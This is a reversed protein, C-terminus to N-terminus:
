TMMDLDDDVSSSRPVGPHAVSSRDPLLSGLGVQAMPSVAVAVTTTTTTPPPPPVSSVFKPLPRPSPRSRAWSPPYATVPEEMPTTVAEETVDFRDFDLTPESFKTPGGRVIRSTANEPGDGHEKQGGGAGTDSGGRKEAAESATGGGGATTSQSFVRASRVFSVIGAFTRGFEIDAATYAARAQVMHSTAPDVGELIVLVEFDGRLLDAQSLGYLPSSADIDHSVVAPLGLSLFLSTAEWDALPLRQVATSTSAVTPTPNSPLFSSSFRHPTPSTTPNPHPSSPFPTPDPAHATTREDGSIQPSNPRSSVDVNQVGTLSSAPITQRLQRLKTLHLSTLILHIRPQLMGHCKLNAVRCSLRRTGHVDHFAMKQSFKINQSRHMPSSFRAFVIGMMSTNLLVAM